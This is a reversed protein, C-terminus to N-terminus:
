CAKLDGDNEKWLLTDNFYIKTLFGCIGGSKDQWGQPDPTFNSYNLSGLSDFFHFVVQKESEATLRGIM